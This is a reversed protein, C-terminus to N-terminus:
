VWREILIGGPIASSLLASTAFCLRGLSRALGACATPTPGWRLIFCHSVTDRISFQAPDRLMADRHEAVLRGRQQAVLVEGGRHRARLFQPWEHLAQDR